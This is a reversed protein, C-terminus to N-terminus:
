SPTRGAPVLASPRPSSTKPHLRELTGRDKEGLESGVCRREVRESGDGLPNRRKAILAHLDGTPVSPEEIEVAGGFAFGIAILQDTVERRVAEADRLEGGMQLALENRHMRRIVRQEVGERRLLDM